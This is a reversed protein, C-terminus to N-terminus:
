AEVQEPPVMFLYGARSFGADRGLEQRADGLIGIAAHALRAMLPTSYHQRMIAASLGTGGGAPRERELCLVSLGRRALFWSLSAGAIGCGIVVADFKETM